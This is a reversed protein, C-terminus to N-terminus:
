RASQLVHGAYHYGFPVLYREGNYMTAGSAVAANVVNDLGAEAWLDAIPELHGADAVFQTRAGAWYSFVDPLNGGAARVLIGDKFDEHGIPSDTVTIGTADKFSAFIEELGARGLDGSFYHTITVEGEAHAPLAVGGIAMGLALSRWRWSAEGRWEEARALM